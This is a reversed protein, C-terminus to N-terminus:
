TEVGKRKVMTLVNGDVPSSRYEVEDMLRRMLYIGLGGVKRRSLDGSLNPEPVSAPDFPQGRDRLIVKFADQSWTCEVEILGKGEGGYAHEIINASAEDVASQIAYADKESFGARRAAEAIFQRIADLNQFAADFTVRTM